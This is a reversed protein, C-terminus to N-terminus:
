MKAIGLQTLLEFTSWEVWHEVIKGAGNFRYIHMETWHCKKGTPPAGMLEGKHTAAASSREVVTTENAILDEETVKVDPFATNMMRGVAKFGELGPPVPMKFNHKFDPSFLRDVVDVNHENKFVKTFERVTAKHQEVNSM